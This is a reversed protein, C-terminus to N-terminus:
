ATGRTDRSIGSSASIPECMLPLLRIDIGFQRKVKDIISTPLQAQANETLDELKESIDKQHKAREDEPRSLALGASEAIRRYSQSLRLCESQYEDCKLAKHIAILVASLGALVSAPPLLWNGIVAAAKEAPVAAFIAAMTSFVAPLVVFM